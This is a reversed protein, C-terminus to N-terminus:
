APVAVWDHRSEGYVSQTPAPFSPDGFCGVAVAVAAPKRSPYWFVTSGCRGCFHFTVPFGSDSDRRYIRSSGTIETAASDFFAAIGFPSGTRRQCDLCHCLSVKAPEQPCLIQLQGCTCRARRVTM